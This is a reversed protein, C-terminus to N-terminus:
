EGAESEAFVERRLAALDDEFRRRLAAKEAEPLFAADLARLSLAALDDVEFAFHEALVRYENTLTTDFMPPDDSNVTVQVGADHLTRFPHGQYDPVVGLRVNSTPSVELVMGSDALERVLEADEISRVGHGIRETGTALADRVSHAGDTEGAHLSIRAGASRALDFSDRYRSAPNGFELGGLGFGVLGDGLNAATWRAMEMVEEVSRGRVPDLIFQMQVGLEEAARKAGARVGPTAIDPLAAVKPLLISAPSYHVELYRINEAAARQAMEFTVLEYDEEDVLNVCIQVYIEVFHPFDRFVFWDRAEELTSYPLSRGHKDALRLLTDPYVSGELHVHLEVKPMREIFEREREGIRRGGANVSAERLTNM